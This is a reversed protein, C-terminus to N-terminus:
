IHTYLAANTGSVGPVANFTQPLVNYSPQYGRTGEQLEKEVFFM